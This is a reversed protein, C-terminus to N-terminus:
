RQSLRINWMNNAYEVRRGHLHLCCTREFRRYRYLLSRVTMDLFM